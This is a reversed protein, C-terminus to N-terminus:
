RQVQHVEIANDLCCICEHMTFVPQINETHVFLIRTTTMRSVTTITFLAPTAVFLKSVVCAPKSTAIPTFYAMRGLQGQICDVSNIFLDAM